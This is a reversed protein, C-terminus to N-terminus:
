TGPASRRVAVATNIGGFGYALVLANEIPQEEASAGVWRFSSDIPDVLNRSPHLRGQELQVLTAILGVAGASSLGHGTISKTTNLRAHSLGCAKLASLEIADGQRSGSGHPNVYDVREPPLDAQRLAAAIVQTEGEVSSLPGRNADLQMEWGALVGRPKVGRRRAHAASEIVVAGCAEGYIFGDSERDFPRCAREPEQAFRDTGMAGLGRLGQCEWYSLDMLAGVAICVDVRGARVAEAAQIVALLGSASAGGVTFSMGHIGFQQTCLGVLDTDMFTSGYAARLFPVRERYAEQMLVLDRQQVNTGGVILGVRQGPVDQLRAAHWAEHVTVLAAQAPFTATRWLQPTVGEPMTLATLEAGLHASAQGNHRHQRGPREMVQFRAAGAMLASTFAAAGQGIASTVGFGSVVWEQAPMTSM